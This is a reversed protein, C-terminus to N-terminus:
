GEARALDIVTGVERRRYMSRWAGPQGVIKYRGDPREFVDRRGVTPAGPPLYATADVKAGDRGNASIDSGTAPAWGCGDILVTEGDVLPTNGHADTTGDVQRILTLTEGGGVM